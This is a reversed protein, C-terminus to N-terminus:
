LRSDQSVTSKLLEIRPLMIVKQLDASYVVTDIEQNESDSKYEDRSWNAKEIHGVWSNCCICDVKLNNKDHTDIMMCFFDKAFSVNKM